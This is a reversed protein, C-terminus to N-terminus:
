KWLLFKVYADSSSENLTLTIDRKVADTASTILAVSWTPLDAQGGTWVNVCSPSSVTIVFEGSGITGMNSWVYVPEGTVPDVKYSKSSDVLRSANLESAFAFFLDRTSTGFASGISEWGTESSSTMARLFAIGGCDIPVTPNSDSWTMGGKKWFLWSLFMAMGGRRGASDGNGLADTGCLSFRSTDKLYASLFKLNGGSVGFGCLSEGLHSWGEDLFLDEQVASSDGAIVRKWTKNTYNVAHTLEHACTAVITENSYSTSEDPVALYVIDMENSSPNYYATRLQVTIMHRIIRIEMLASRKFISM